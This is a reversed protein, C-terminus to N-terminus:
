QRWIPCSEKDCMIDEMKPHECIVFQGCDCTAQYNCLSQLKKWSRRKKKM